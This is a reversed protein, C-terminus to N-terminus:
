LYLRIKKTYRKRCIPCRSNISFHRHHMCGDCFCHGCNVIAYMKSPECRCIQCEYKKCKSELVKHLLLLRIKVNIYESILIHLETEYNDINNQLIMTLKHLDKKTFDSYSFLVSKFVGIKNTINNLKMEVNEKLIIYKDFTEILYSNIERTNQIYKYIDIDTDNFIKDFHIQINENNEIENVLDYSKSKYINTEYLKDKIDEYKSLEDKNDELKNFLCEIDDLKTELIDREIIENTKFFSINKEVKDEINLILKKVLFNTEINQDLTNTNDNNEYFDSFEQLTPIGHLYPLNSLINDNM